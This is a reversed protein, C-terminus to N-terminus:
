LGAGVPCDIEVPVSALCNVDRAMQADRVSPHLRIGLSNPKGEKPYINAWAKVHVREPIEVLSNCSVRMGNDARGDPGWTAVAWAGNACQIAGHVTFFGYGDGVSYIRVNDGGITRYKKSKDVIM